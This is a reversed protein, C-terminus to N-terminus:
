LEVEGRGRENMEECPKGVEVVETVQNIRLLSL